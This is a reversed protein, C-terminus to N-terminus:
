TGFRYLFFIEALVSRTAMQDGSKAKAQIQDGLARLGTSYSNTSYGFGLHFTSKVAPGNEKSETIADTIKREQYGGGLMMQLSCFWGSWFRWSYGYGLALGATNFHASLPKYGNQQLVTQNGNIFATSGTDISSSNFFTSAIWSGGSDDERQTQDFASAMSYQDSSFLYYIQGGINKGVANPTTVYNGSQDMFNQIYFGHYDQYFLDLAIKQFYLNLSYDTSKTEGRAINQQKDNKLTQKASLGLGKYSAAVGVKMKSNPKYIIPKENPVQLDFEFSPVSASAGLTWTAPYDEVGARALGSVFFLVFIFRLM